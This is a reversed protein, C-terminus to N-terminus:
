QKVKKEIQTLFQETITDWDFRAEAFTRAARSKEEYLATNHSLYAETMADALKDIDVLGMVVGWKPGVIETAQPILWGRENKSGVLEPGTSNDPLIIPLGCALAEASPIGFGEGGTAIVHADALGYLLAMEERSLGHLPNSSNDSFRVNEFLGYEKVLDPLPWGGMGMTDTPDGCHLILGVKDGVRDVVQKLAQLLRPIQKRNTNRAVSLFTFDWDVGLAKKAEAKKAKNQPKFVDLDVGHYIVPGANILYRDLHPDRMDSPGVGSSGFQKVFQQMTSRGFDSMWVPQNLNALIDKWKYSIPHGDIPLYALYPIGLRNTSQVAHGIFWIDILSIYIDPKLRQLNYELTTLGSSNLKDSGYGGIGAHVMTWGEEHKFDEGNYDWGMVFVEHGLAALRKCIERSVVGYGTPRTPQESGWLIRLKKPKPKAM